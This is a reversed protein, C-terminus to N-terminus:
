IEPQATREAATELLRSLTVATSRDICGDVRQPRFRRQFASVVTKTWTDFTGTPEIGYGYRHLNRQVELITADQMGVSLGPDTADPPEPEVWDCLGLLSLRRWDFKEGPDIKRGPAIDSHAVVDGPTIAHRAIIDASLREVAVMQIDPFDPYGADHGVNQIEIGISKSNIDTEGHWSSVGAHWARMAEPVMQVIRGDLDIVYHCSVECRPDSLIDLSRAFTPLGTYHLVLIAPTLNSKRDNINGSPIVEAVLDSDAAFPEAKTM